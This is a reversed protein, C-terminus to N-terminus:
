IVIEQRFSVNGLHGNKLNLSNLINLEVKIREVNLYIKKFDVYYDYTSISDRFTKLWENFDRKM